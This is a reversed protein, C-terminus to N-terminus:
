KVPKLELQVFGDYRLKLSNEKLVLEKSDEEAVPLSVTNYIAHVKMVINRPVSYGFHFPLTIPQCVLYVSEGSETHEPHGQERHFDKVEWEIAQVTDTTVPERGDPDRVEAVLKAYRKAVEPNKVIIDKYFAVVEEDINLLQVSSKTVETGMPEAFSVEATIGLMLAVVWVQRGIWGTLYM